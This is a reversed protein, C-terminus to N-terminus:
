GILLKFDNAGSKLYSQATSWTGQESLGLIALRDHDHISRLCRILEVGSMTGLHPGVIAIRFDKREELLSLAEAISSVTAVNFRYIKLMRILYEREVTEPYLVM